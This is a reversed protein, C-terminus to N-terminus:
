HRLVEISVDDYDEVTITLELDSSRGSIGSTLPVDTIVNRDTWSSWWGDTRTLFEPPQGDVEFRVRGRGHTEARVWLTGGSPISVTIRGHGDLDETDVRPLATM